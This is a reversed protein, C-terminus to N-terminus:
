EHGPPSIHYICFIHLLLSASEPAMFIGQFYSTHNLALDPYTILPPNEQNGYVTVSVYGCGTWIIHEVLDTLNMSSVLEHPHQLPWSIAQPFTMFAELILFSVQRSKMKQLIGVELVSFSRVPGTYLIPTQARPQGSVGNSLSRQKLKLTWHSKEIGADTLIVHTVSTDIETACTAGMARSDERSHTYRAPDPKLNQRTPLFGCTFGWWFGKAHLEDLSERHIMLMFRRAEISIKVADPYYGQLNTILSPKPLFDEMGRHFNESCGPLLRSPKNNPFAESSLGRYKTNDVSEGEEDKM